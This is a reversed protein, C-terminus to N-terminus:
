NIERAFVADREKQRAELELKQLNMIATRMEAEDTHARELDARADKEAADAERQHTAADLADSARSLLYAVAILIVGCLLGLAFTTVDPM